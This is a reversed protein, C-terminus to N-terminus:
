CGLLFGHHLLPLGRKERDPNVSALHEALVLHYSRRPKFMLDCRESSKLASQFLSYYNGMIEGVNRYVIIDGPKTKNKPPQPDAFWWFQFSSLFNVSIFVKEKFIYIDGQIKPIVHNFILWWHWEMGMNMAVAWKEQHGSNIRGQIRLFCLLLILSPFPSQSLPQEWPNETSPDLTACTPFSMKPPWFLPSSRGLCFIYFQIPLHYFKSYYSGVNMTPTWM